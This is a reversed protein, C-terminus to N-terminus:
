GFWAATVTTVEYHGVFFFPQTALAQEFSNDSTRNGSSIVKGGSANVTLTFPATDAGHEAYPNHNVPVWFSNPLAYSESSSVHLTQSRDTSPISYTIEVDFEPASAYATTIDTGVTILPLRLPEGTRFQVSAGNVAMATVKAKNHLFFSLRPKSGTGLLVKDALERGSLNVLRMKAQVEVAHAELNVTAKVNYQKIEFEQALTPVALLLLASAFLFINKM